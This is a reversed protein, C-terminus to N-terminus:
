VKLVGRFARAAYYSEAGNHYVFVTNYRRDCFLAGGLERIDKPTKIWSSTKLDFKGLSQLYRYQEESLLEVGMEKAATIVDNQPKHEKRADLAERDYCFSRRGKPSEASCDFFIYEDNKEDYDVVDPEGGSNEMQYLSWLKSPNSNLKAEIKTWDLNEHRSKNKEFRQQLVDLLEITEKESLQKKQPM